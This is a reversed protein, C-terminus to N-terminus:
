LDINNLFESVEDLVSGIAHASKEIVNENLISKVAYQDMRIIMTNLANDYKRKINAFNEALKSWAQSLNSDESKVVSSIDSCINKAGELKALLITSQEKLRNAQRQIEKASFKNSNDQGYGTIMATGEAERAAEKGANELITEVDM